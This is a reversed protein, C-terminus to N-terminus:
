QPEDEAIRDERVFAKIEPRTMYLYRVPHM